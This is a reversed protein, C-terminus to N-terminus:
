CAIAPCEGPRCLREAIGFALYLDDRECLSISEHELAVLVEWRGTNGNRCVTVVSPQEDYYNLDTTTM